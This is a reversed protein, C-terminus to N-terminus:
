GRSKRRMLGLGVLGTGILLLTGPEAVPVSKSLSGIAVLDTGGISKCCKKIYPDNITTGGGKGKRGRKGTSGCCSYVSTIGFIKVAAISDGEAFGFDTLDILAVNLNYDDAAKAGTDKSSYTRAPTWGTDDTFPSVSVVIDEAPFGAEFIALDAGVGNLATNDTFIFSIYDKDLLAVGGDTVDGNLLGSETGGGWYWGGDINKDIVSDVFATDDFDYSWSAGGIVLAGAMSVTGLLVVASVLCALVSKKM